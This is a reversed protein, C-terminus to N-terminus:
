PQQVLLSFFFFSYFFIIFLTNLILAVKKVRLVNNSKIFNVKAILQLNFPGNVELQAGIACVIKIIREITQENLDQPPTVLTADGSHVGSVLM